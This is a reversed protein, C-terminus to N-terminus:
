TVLMQVLAAVDPSSMKDLGGRLNVMRKLGKLHAAEFRLSGWFELLQAKALPSNFVSSPLDTRPKVVLQSTVTLILVATIVGDLKDIPLDDILNRIDGLLYGLYRTRMREHIDLHPHGSVSFDLGMTVAIMYGRFAFKSTQTHTYFLQDPRTTVVSSPSLNPWFYNRAYDLAEQVVIPDEQTLFDLCALKPSLPVLDQCVREKDISEAKRSNKKSKANLQRVKYQTHRWAFFGNVETKAPKRAHPKLRSRKDGVEDEPLTEFLM